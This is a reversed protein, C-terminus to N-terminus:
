AMDTKLNPEIDAVVTIIKAPCNKQYCQADCCVTAFRYSIVRSTANSAIAKNSLSKTVKFIKDGKYKRSHILLVLHSM